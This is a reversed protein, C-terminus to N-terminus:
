QSLLKKKPEIPLHVDRNFRQLARNAEKLEEKLSALNIELQNNKDRMEIKFERMENRFIFM